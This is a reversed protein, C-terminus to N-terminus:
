DLEERLEKLRGRLEKIADDVASEASGKKTRVLIKVTDKLPHEKIKGAYEVDENRVLAEILPNIFNEDDMEIVLEREDSKVKTKIM